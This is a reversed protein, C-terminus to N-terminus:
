DDSTRYRDLDRRDRKTPRGVIGHFRNQRNMEQVLKIKDLESQDTTELLFDKVLKAGVRTKPKDIVKYTRWTPNDRMRIIDGISVEKSPKIPDENIQVKDSVCLKSAITRTKALRVAWLYKDIRM